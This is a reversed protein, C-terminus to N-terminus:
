IKMNVTTSVPASVFNKRFPFEKGYTLGQMAKWRVEHRYNVWVVGVQIKELIKSVYENM